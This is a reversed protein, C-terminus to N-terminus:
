GGPAVGRRGPVVGPAPRHRRVAPGGRRQGGSTVAQVAAREIDTPYINRGAMIIVDKRRGCVVVQGDVLYGEDGTDL